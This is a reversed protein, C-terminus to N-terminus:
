EKTPKKESVRRISSLVLPAFWLYFRLPTSLITWSWFIPAITLAFLGASFFMITRIRRYKALLNQPLLKRDEITLQHTFLALIAMLGAMDLAYAISAADLLAPHGSFDFVVNLYFLYPEISVLFLMVINLIVTTMEELPLVSMISTYSVWVSILILFSFGFEVVDFLIGGPTKPLKIILSITAVSLALGFILDSLSEIRPRPHRATELAM